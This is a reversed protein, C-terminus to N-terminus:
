GDAGEGVVGLLEELRKLQAPSLGSLSRIAARRVDDDLRDLLSRGRETILSVRHRRDISSRRTTVARIRALGSLIRTLDPDRTVMREGIGNRSLGDSGAGRLIRLVNYQSPTLGARRVVASSAMSAVWAARVLAILVREEPTDIGM